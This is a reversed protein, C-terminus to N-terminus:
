EGWRFASNWLGEQFDTLQVPEGGAVPLAYAQYGAGGRVDGVAVHAGDPSWTVPRDPAVQLPAGLPRLSGADGFAASMLQGTDPSYFVVTEGDPSVSAAGLGSGEVPFATVAGTDVDLTFSHMRIPGMAESREPTSIAIKRGDASTSLSTAIPNLALQADSPLPGFRQVGGALSGYFIEPAAADDALPVALYAVSGDPALAFAVIGSDADGAFPDSAGGSWLALRLNRQDAATADRYSFLVREGAGDIRATSAIWQSGAPPAIVIEDQAGLDRLVLEGAMNTLIMRQLLVASGDAALDWAYTGLVLEAPDETPLAASDFVLSGDALSVV